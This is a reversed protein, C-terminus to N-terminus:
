SQTPRLPEDGPDDDATEGRRAAAKGDVIADVAKQRDRNHFEYTAGLAGAGGHRRARGSLLVALVIVLAGGTWIANSISEADM